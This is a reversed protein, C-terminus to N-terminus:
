EDGPMTWREHDPLRKQIARLRRLQEARSLPPPRGDLKHSKEHEKAREELTKRAESDEGTKRAERRIMRFAIYIVGVIAVAGLAYLAITQWV